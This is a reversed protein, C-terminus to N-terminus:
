KQEIRVGMAGPLPDVLVQRWVADPVCVGRDDFGAADVVDGVADPRGIQVELERSDPGGASSSGTREMRLWCRRARKEVRAPGDPKKITVISVKFARFPPSDVARPM